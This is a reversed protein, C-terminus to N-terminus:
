LRTRPSNVTSAGSSRRPITRTSGGRTTSIRCRFCASYTSTTRQIPVYSTCMEDERHLHYLCRAIGVTGGSWAVPRPSGWGAHCNGQMLDKRHAVSARPQLSSAGHIDKNQFVVVM